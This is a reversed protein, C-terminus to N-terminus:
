RMFIALLLIIPLPIGLFWLLAGRGFGMAAEMMINDHAPSDKCALFHDDAPHDLWDANRAVVAIDADSERRTGSNIPARLARAGARSTGNTIM